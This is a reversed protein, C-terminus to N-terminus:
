SETKKRIFPFDKLLMKVDTRSAFGQRLSDTLEERLNSIITELTDKEYNDDWINNEIIGCTQRFGESVSSM